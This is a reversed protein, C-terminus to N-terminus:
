KRPRPMRQLEAPMVQERGRDSGFVRDFAADFAHLELPPLPAFTATHVSESGDSNIRRVTQLHEDGIAISEVSTRENSAM